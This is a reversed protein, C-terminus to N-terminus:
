PTPSEGSFVLALVKEVLAPLEEAAQRRVKEADAAAERLLNEREHEAAATAETIVRDREAAAFVRAEAVLQEARRRADALLQQTGIDFQEEVSKAREEAQVLQALLPRLERELSATKDAPVGATAPAGPVNALRFRRLWGQLM